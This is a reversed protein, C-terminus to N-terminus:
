NIMAHKFPITDVKNHGVEFLLGAKHKMQTRFRAQLTELTMTLAKYKMYLRRRIKERALYQTMNRVHTAFSVTNGQYEM